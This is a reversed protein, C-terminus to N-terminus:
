YVLTWASSVSRFALNHLTWRKRLEDDSSSIEYEILPAGDNTTVFVADNTCSRMVRLKELELTNIKPTAGEPQDWIWSAVREATESAEHGPPLFTRYADRDARAIASHLAGVQTLVDQRVEADLEACPEPREHGLRIVAPLHGLERSESDLLRERRTEATLSREIELDRHQKGSTDAASVHFVVQNDGDELWPTLDFVETTHFYDDERRDEQAPLRLVMTGNVELDVYARVTDVKVVYTEPLRYTM